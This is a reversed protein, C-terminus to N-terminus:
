DVGFHNKTFSYLENKTLGHWKTPIVIEKVQGNNIPPDTPIGTAGGDPDILNNGM